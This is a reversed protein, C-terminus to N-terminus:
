LKQVAEGSMRSQREEEERKLLKEHRDGVIDIYHRRMADAQSAKFNYVEGAIDDILATKLRRKGDSIVGKLYRVIADKQLQAPQTGLAQALQGRIGDDIAEDREVKRLLLIERALADILQDSGAESASARRALILKYGPEGERRECFADLADRMQLAEFDLIDDATLPGATDPKRILARYFEALHPPVGRQIERFRNARFQFRALDCADPMDWWMYIQIVGAINAIAPDMASYLTKFDHIELIDSTKHGAKDTREVIESQISSQHTPSFIDRIKAKDSSCLLEGIVYRNPGWMKDNELTNRLQALLLFQLDGWPSAFRPNARISLEHRLDLYEKMHALIAGVCRQQQENLQRKM